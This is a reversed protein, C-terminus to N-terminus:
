GKVNTLFPTHTAFAWSGSLTKACVCVHVCLVPLPHILSFSSFQASLTGNTRFCLFFESQVWRPQSFLLDLHYYTRQMTSQQRIKWEGRRQRTKKKREKESFLNLPAETSLAPPHRACNLCAACNERRCLFLCNM